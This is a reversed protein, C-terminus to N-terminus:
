ISFTSSQHRAFRLLTRITVPGPARPSAVMDLENCVFLTSKEMRLTSNAHPHRNGVPEERECVFTRGPLKEHGARPTYSANTSRTFPHFLHRATVIKTVQNHGAAHLCILIQNHLSFPHKQHSHDTHAPQSSECTTVDHDNIYSPSICPVAQLLFLHLKSIPHEIIANPIFGLKQSDILQFYNVHLFSSLPSRVWRPLFLLTLLAPSHIFLPPFRPYFFSSCLYLSVPPSYHHHNVFLAKIFLKRPARVFSAKGERTHRVSPLRGEYCHQAEQINRPQKKEIRKREWTGLSHRINGPKRLFIANECGNIAM